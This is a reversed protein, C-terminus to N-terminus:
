LPGLFARPRAAGGRRRKEEQNGGGKGNGEDEAGVLLSALSSSIDARWTRRHSCLASGLLASCPARAPPLTHFLTTGATHETHGKRTCHGTPQQEQQGRSQGASFGVEMPSWCRRFAFASPIRPCVAFAVACRM